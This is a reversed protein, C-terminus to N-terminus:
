AAVEPPTLALRTLCAAVADHVPVLATRIAQRKADPTDGAAWSAIYPVAMGETPLGAAACVSFGFSEAQVERTSRPDGLHGGHGLLHHGLEHALTEAVQKPSADAAIHIRQTSRQYYGFLGDAVSCDTAHLNVTLGEATALQLLADRLRESAADAGDLGHPALQPLPAGETQSIDFVYVVRFGVRPPPNEAPTEDDPPLEQAKYTVPALIMIGHEGKKVSRGLKKWTHFGAVRTAAPYQTAILLINGFSYHHFRAQVTLWRRFHDSDLLDDLGTELRDLLERASAM